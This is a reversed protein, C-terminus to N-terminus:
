LQQSFLSKAAELEGEWAWLADHNLGNIRSVSLEMTM